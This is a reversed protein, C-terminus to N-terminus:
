STTAGKRGDATTAPVLLRIVPGALAAPDVDPDLLWQLMCGEIAGVVVAAHAAPDAPSPAGESCAEALLGAIVTRYDRYATAMDIPSETDRGASWLDLMVHALDRDAPLGTMVSRILGALRDAASGPGDLAEGLIRESREALDTFAALLLHSRSNFYLYVSGKAIGAERAVDDIRSAAYGRRAFVRVAAALIEERRAERDVKRPTVVAGGETV